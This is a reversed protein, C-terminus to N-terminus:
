RRLVMAASREEEAFREGCRPFRTLSREETKDDNGYCTANDASTSPRCDSNEVESTMAGGLHTLEAARAATPM